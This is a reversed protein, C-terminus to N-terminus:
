TLANTFLILAVQAMLDEITAPTTGTLYIAELHLSTMVQLIGTAREAVGLVRTGRRGM